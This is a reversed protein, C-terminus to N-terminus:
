SEKGAERKRKLDRRIAAQQKRPVNVLGKRSRRLVFPQGRSPMGKGAEALHIRGYSKGNISRSARTCYADAPLTDLRRTKPPRFRAASM